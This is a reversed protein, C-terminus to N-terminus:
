NRTEQYDNWIQAWNDDTLEDLSSVKYMRKVSEVHDPRNRFWCDNMRARIRRAQRHKAMKLEAAKLEEAKEAKEKEYREEELKEQRRMEITDAPLPQGHKEAYHNHAMRRKWGNYFCTTGEEDTIKVDYLIGNYEKFSAVFYPTAENNIIIFDIWIKRATQLEVGNRYLKLQCGTNIGNRKAIHAVKCEIENHIM